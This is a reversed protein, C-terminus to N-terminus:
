GLGLRVRVRVRAGVRVVDQLGGLLGRGEHRAAGLLVLRLDSVRVRVRVVLGSGLGLGM